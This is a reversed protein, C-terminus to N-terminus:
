GSMVTDLRTRLNELIGTSDALNQLPSSSQREIATAMGGELAIIHNRDDFCTISINEFQYVVDAALTDFWKIADQPGCLHIAMMWNPSDNNLDQSADLLFVWQYHHSLDPALYVPGARVVLGTVNILRPIRINQRNSQLLSQITMAREERTKLTQVARDSSVLTKKLLSIESQPTTQLQKLSGLFEGRYRQSVIDRTFTDIATISIQDGEKVHSFQNNPNWVMLLAVRSYMDVDFYEMPINPVLPRQSVEGVLVTQCPISKASLAAPFEQELMEKCRKQQIHSLEVMRESIHHQLATRDQEDLGEVFSEGQSQAVVFTAYLKEIRTADSGEQLWGKCMELEEQQIAEKSKTSMEELETDLVAVAKSALSKTQFTSVGSLLKSWMLSPFVRLVTLVTRPTKGGKEHIQSLPTIPIEIRQLGLKAFHSAPHVQNYKLILRSNKVADLPEGASGGVLEAHSIRLKKGIYIDHRHVLNSLAEDCDCFISYWGDTLELRYLSSPNPVKQVSAVKLICPLVSPTDRQLVGKLFSKKGKVYEKEYRGYIVDKVSDYRLSPLMNSQINYLDVLALKWVVWKYHNRVWADVVIDPNAGMVLLHARVDGPGYSDDFYYKAALEPTIPLTSRVTMQPTKESLNSGPTVMKQLAPNQPTVLRPTQLGSSSRHRRKALLANGPTQVSTTRSVQQLRAKSDRPVFRSSMRSASPDDDGKASADGEEALFRAAADMKEKSISITSGAGTTFISTAAVKPKDEDVSDLFKAAADLKEKSISLKSGSGTTFISSMANRGVPEKPADNDSLLRKAADIKEKSLQVNLEKGSGTTFISARPKQELLQQIGLDEDSVGQTMSMPYEFDEVHADYQQAQGVAVVNGVDYEEPLLACADEQLGEAERTETMNEAPPLTVKKEIATVCCDEVDLWIDEEGEGRYFGLRGDSGSSTKGYVLGHFADVVEVRLRKKGKEAM